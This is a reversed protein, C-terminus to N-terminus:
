KTPEKVIIKPELKGFFMEQGNDAEDIKNGLKQASFPSKLLKVMGHSKRFEPSGYLYNASEPTDFRKVNSNYYELSVDAEILEDDENIDNIHEYKNWGAFEIIKPM